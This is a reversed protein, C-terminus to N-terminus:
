TTVVHKRAPVFRDDCADDAGQSIGAARNGADSSASNPSLREAHQKWEPLSSEFAAGSISSSMAMRERLKRVEAEIQRLFYLAL